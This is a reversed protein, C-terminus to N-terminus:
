GAPDDGSPISAPGSTVFDGFHEQACEQCMGHTFQADSHASVYSELQEWYGADSRVRRCWACLPLLGSLTRISAMAEALEHRRRVEAQRSRTLARSLLWGCALAGGGANVLAISASAPAGDAALIIGTGALLLASGALGVWMADFAVFPLVVALVPTFLLLPSASRGTVLLVALDLAVSAGIGITVGAQALTRTGTRLM